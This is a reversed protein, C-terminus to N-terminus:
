THSESKAQPATSVTITCARHTNQPCGGCLSLSSHLAYNGPISFLCAEAGVLELSGANSGVAKAVQADLPVSRSNTPHIPRAISDM